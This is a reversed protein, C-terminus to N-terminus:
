ADACIGIRLHFTKLSLDFRKISENSLVFLIEVLRCRWDLIDGDDCVEGAAENLIGDGCGSLIRRCDVGCVFCRREGPACSEITRNNDDCEEGDAQKVIGDGCTPSPGSCDERCGEELDYSNRNQTGLDCVEDGSAVGDGCVGVAETNTSVCVRGDVGETCAYGQPCDNRQACGLIADSPIDPNKGLLVRHPCDLGVDRPKEALLAPIDQPREDDTWGKFHATRVVFTQLRLAPTVHKAKTRNFWAMGVIRPM